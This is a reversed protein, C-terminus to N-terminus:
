GREDVVAHNGSAPIANNGGGTAQTTGSCVPLRGGGFIRSLLATSIGLMNQFCRACFAGNFFREANNRGRTRARELEEPRLERGSLKGKEEAIAEAIKEREVRSQLGELMKEHAMSRLEEPSKGSNGRRASELESALRRQANLLLQITQNPNESRIIERLAAYEEVGAGNQASLRLLEILAEREPGEPRYTRATGDAAEVIRLGSPSLAEALDHSFFEAAERLAVTREGPTRNSNTSNSVPTRGQNLATVIATRTAVPLGTLQNTVRSAAEEVRGNVENADQMDRVASNVLGRLNTDEQGIELVRRMLAGHGEFMTRLNTLRQRQSENLGTQRQEMLRLYENFELREREQMDLTLRERHAENKFITEALLRVSDHRWGFIESARIRELEIPGPLATSTLLVLTFSTVIFVLRSM